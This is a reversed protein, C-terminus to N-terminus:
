KSSSEPEDEQDEILQIGNYDLLSGKLYHLEVMRKNYEGIAQYYLLEARSRRDEARIASWLLSAPEGDNTEIRHLHVKGEDATAITERAHDRISAYTSELGTLARDLERLLNIEKERLEEKFGVVQFRANQISSSLRRRGFTNTVDIQPFLYNKAVIIELERQKLGWQLRRLELNRRLAEVLIDDWDYVVRVNTPQSVPRLLTGDDKAFGLTERLIEERGYLGFPDMGPVRSGHLAALRGSEFQHVLARAQAESESPLDFHSFPTQTKRWLKLANERADKSAEYSRYSTSLDWYANEVRKVLNRVKAEFQLLSIDPTASGIVVPMVNAEAGRERRLMQQNSAVRPFLQGSSSGAEENAQSEYGFVASFQLDFEQLADEVGGIASARHPPIYLTGEVGLDSRVSGAPQGAKPTGIVRVFDANQLALQMCEELTLDRFRQPEQGRDSSAQLARDVDVRSTTHGQESADIAEPEDESHNDKSSQPSQDHSDGRADVIREYIELARKWTLRQLTDDGQLAIVQVAGDVRRYKKIGAREYEAILKGYADDSLKGSVTVWAEHLQDDTLNSRTFLKGLVPVDRLLPIAPADFRELQCRLLVVTALEMTEGAAHPLVICYLPTLGNFPVEFRGGGVRVDDVSIQFQKSPESGERPELWGHSAKVEVVFSPAADSESSPASEEAKKTPSLQLRNGFQVERKGPGQETIVERSEYRGYRVDASLGLAVNITKSSPRPENLESLQAVAKAFEEKKPEKLEILKSSTDLPQPMLGLSRIVKIPVLYRDHEVEIRLFGTRELEALWFETRARQKRNEYAYLIGDVIKARPEAGGLVIQQRRADDVVATFKIESVKTGYPNLRSLQSLLEKRAIERTIRLEDQARDLLANVPYTRLEPWSANEIRIAPEAPSAGVSQTPKQTSKVEDLTSGESTTESSPEAEKALVLAAGPLLTIAGVMFTGWVWVPCRRHCGQGLRMIREMRKATLDIPRIGPLLPSARLQQKQELVSLLSRAYHAPSCGLTAITEEDCSREAERSMLRSAIWILPHCWWLCVASIQIASWWLDGRRCHVMEHALMTELATASSNRVVVKPMVIKPRLLGLIAPGTPQDVVLVRVPRIKLRTSLEAAQSALSAPTEIMSRRISRLFRAFRFAAVFSVVVTGMGWIGFICRAWPISIVSPQMLKTPAFPESAPVPGISESFGGEDVDHNANFQPLDFEYGPPPLPPAIDTMAVDFPVTLEEIEIAKSPGLEARLWSFPSTPSPILPPTLSKLLVLVWMAHAFHPRDKAFLRTIVLALCAVLSVQITQWFLLSLLADSNM